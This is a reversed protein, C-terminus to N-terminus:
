HLINFNYCNILWFPSFGLIVKGIGYWMKEVLHMNSEDKFDGGNVLKEKQLIGQELLRDIMYEYSVQNSDRLLLRYSGINIDEEIYFPDIQKGSIKFRVADISLLSM